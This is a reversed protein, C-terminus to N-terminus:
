YGAHLTMVEEKFKINQSGNCGGDIAMVQEEFKQETIQQIWCPSGNGRRKIKTRHDTTDLM